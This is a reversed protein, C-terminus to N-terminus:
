VLSWEWVGYSARVAETLAFILYLQQKVDGFEKWSVIQYFNFGLKVDRMELMFKGGSLETKRGRVAEYMESRM